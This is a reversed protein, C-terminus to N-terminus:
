RVSGGGCSNCGRKYSEPTVSPVLTQPTDQNDQIFKLYAASPEIDPYATIGCAAMGAKHSFELAPLPEIGNEECVVTFQKYDFRNDLDLWLMLRKSNDKLM